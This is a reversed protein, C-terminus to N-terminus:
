LSQTIILVPSREYPLTTRFSFSASAKGSNINPKMGSLHTGPSRKFSLPPSTYGFPFNAVASNYETQEARTDTILTTTQTMQQRSQGDAALILVRLEKKRRVKTWTATRRKGPWCNLTLGLILSKARPSSGLKEHWRLSAPSREVSLDPM